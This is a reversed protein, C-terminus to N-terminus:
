QSLDCYDNQKLMDALKRSENCWIIALDNSKTPAWKLFADSVIKAQEVIEQQNVTNTLLTELSHNLSPANTKTKQNKIANMAVDSLFFVRQKKGDTKMKDRFKQQRNGITYDM